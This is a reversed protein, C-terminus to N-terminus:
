FTAVLHNKSRNAGAHVDICHNILHVLKYNKVISGRFSIPREPSTTHSFAIRKLDMPLAHRHKISGDMFLREVRVQKM